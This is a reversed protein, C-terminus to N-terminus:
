LVAGIFLRPSSVQLASCTSRETRLSALLDALKSKPAASSLTEASANHVSHESLTLPSLSTRTSQVRSPSALLTTPSRLMPHLVDDDEDDSLWLLLAHASPSVSSMSGASPSSVSVPSSPVGSGSNDSDPDLRVRTRARSPLTCLLPRAPRPTKIAPKKVSNASSAAAEEAQRPRSPQIVSLTGTTISRMERLTASLPPAAEHAPAISPQDHALSDPAPHQQPRVEATAAESTRRPIPKIVLPLSKDGVPEGTSAPAGAMFQAIRQLLQRPQHSQQQQQQQHQQHQQQQQQQQQQEHPVHEEAAAVTATTTRDPALPAVQNTMVAQPQETHLVQESLSALEDRQCPRISRTNDMPSTSRATTRRKGARGIASENVAVSGGPELRIPMLHLIRTSCRPCPKDERALIRGCPQCCSVHYCSLLVADCPESSCVTCLAQTQPCTSAADTSTEELATRDMSSSRRAAAENVTQASSESSNNSRQTNDEGPDADSSASGAASDNLKDFRVFLQAPVGAQRAAEKMWAAPEDTSQSPMLRQLRDSLGQEVCLLCESMGLGAPEAHTHQRSPGSTDSSPHVIALYFSALALLTAWLRVHPRQAITHLDDATCEDLERLLLSMGTALRPTNTLLRAAVMTAGAVAGAVGIGIEAAHRPSLGSIYVEPWAPRFTLQQPCRGVTVKSTSVNFDARSSMAGVCVDAALEPLLDADEGVINDLKTALLAHLSAPETDPRSQNLGLQVALTPIAAELGVLAHPRAVISSMCAEGQQLQQDTSQQLLLSTLLAMEPRCVSLLRHATSFMLDQIHLVDGVLSPDGGILRLIGGQGFLRLALNMPEVGGPRTVSESVGSLGHQASASKPVPQPEFVASQCLVALSVFPFPRLRLLLAPDIVSSSVASLKRWEVNNGVWGTASLWYLLVNYTRVAVDLLQRTASEDEQKVAPVTLSSQPKRQQPKSGVGGALARLQEMDEPHQRAWM